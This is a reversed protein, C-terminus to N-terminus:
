PADHITTSTKDDDSNSYLVNDDNPHMITHIESQQKNDAASLLFCVLLSLFGSFWTMDTM